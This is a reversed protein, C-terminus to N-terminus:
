TVKLNPSYQQTIKLDSRKKCQLAQNLGGPKRQYQKGRLEQVHSVQLGRREQVRRVRQPRKRVDKGAPPPVKQLRLM